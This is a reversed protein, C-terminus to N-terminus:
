KKQSAAVVSLWESAIREKSYKELFQPHSGRLKEQVKPHDFFYKVKQYLEEENNPEILFGNEGDIILEKPGYRIDYSIVPVGFSLAEFIALSFGEFSSTAISLEAREYEETLDNKFGDVFVHDELKKEKIVRNLAARDGFGLLHLEVKPFDEILREVLRLQHLLQKEPAYRAVSLLRYSQPQCSKKSPAEHTICAVPIATVPISPGLRQLLDQKQQQTSVIINQYKEPNELVYRYGTTFPAKLISEEEPMATQAAHISHLVAVIPINSNVEGLAQDLELHRDSYFIDGDKYIEEVFFTILQNENEFFYHKGQHDYVVIRQLEGPNASTSDYYKEVKVKGAPSLFQELVVKNTDGTAYLKIKNLFGRSDYFERRITQNNKGTYNVYAVTKHTRDTFHAYMIFQGKQNFIRLGCPNASPEFRYDQEEQWKKLLDFAERRKYHLAEQFYDYITFCHDSVGYQETYNYFWANHKIYVCAADLKKEHFLALRNLQAKEIGTLKKKFSTGIFYNM